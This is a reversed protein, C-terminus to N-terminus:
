DLCFYQPLIDCESLSDCESHPTKTIQTASLLTLLIEQDNKTWALLPHSVVLKDRKIHHLFTNDRHTHINIDEHSHIERFHQRCKARMHLISAKM